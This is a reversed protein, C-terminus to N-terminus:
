LHSRNARKIEELIRKSLVNNAGQLKMIAEQQAAVAAKLAEVSAELQGIRDSSM